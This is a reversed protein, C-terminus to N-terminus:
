APRKRLVRLGTLWRATDIQAPINGLATHPGMLMMMNPLSRGDASYNRPGNEMTGAAAGAAGRFDM